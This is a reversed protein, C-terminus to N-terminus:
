GGVPGSWPTPWGWRASCRWATPHLLIGAGSGAPSDRRELLTVSAGLRALLLATTLGGVGAGVVVVKSSRVRM